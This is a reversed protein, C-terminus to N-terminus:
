PAKLAAGPVPMTIRQYGAPVTFLSDPQDGVRIGKLESVFGGPFEERIALELEPDYWQLSRAPERNPASVMMEWKEVTRGGLVENGVLNLEMKQGNPMLQRLPVDRERDVWQEGTLTQGQQTSTMEWGVALRGGVVEEGLERCVLGPVGVCPDKRAVDADSVPAGGPGTNGSRETYSRQDPFLIWEVQRQTDTIRIVQHGDQTMETRVRGDAVYMKGTSEQGDGTTRVMDASFTAGAVGADAFRAVSLILSASALLLFNISKM